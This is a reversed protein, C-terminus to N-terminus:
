GGGGGVPGERHPPQAHLGATRVNLFSSSVGRGEADDLYSEVTGGGLRAIERLAGALAAATGRGRHPRNVFFCTIRRDPLATLGERCARRHKIWPM